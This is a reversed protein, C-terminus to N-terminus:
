GGDTQKVCLWINSEVFLFLLCSPFLGVPVSWGNGPLAQRLRDNRLDIVRFGPLLRQLRGASFGTHYAETNTLFDRRFKKLNHRIWASVFPRPWCGDPRKGLMPSRPNPVNIYIFGGTKCLRSMRELVQPYANIHELVQHALILDFSEAPFDLDTGSMAIKHLGPHEFSKLRLSDVDTCVLDADPLLQEKLREEIFCFGSGVSLVRRINRGTVHPRLIGIIHDAKARRAERQRLGAARMDRMTGSM